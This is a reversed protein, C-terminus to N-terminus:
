TFPKTAKGWPGEGDKPHSKLHEKMQRSKCHKQKKLNRGQGTCPQPKEFHHNPVGKRVGKGWKVTRRKM